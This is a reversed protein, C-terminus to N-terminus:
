KKNGRLQFKYGVSWVTGIFWYPSGSLKERLRKVHVDVTRTDGAYDYGWINNLLQERTFVQDPSSALFYLLEMEKPPMEVNQGNFFVAYNSLNIILDPFKIIKQSQLRAEPDGRVYGPETRRLVARVRAVLEKMDFPKGIYDDAGLELGLVRDFVEAKESLMIIPVRSNRRIERCIQYGDLIPLVLELIVLDPARTTFAALAKQGDTVITTDYYEKKLTQSIMEAISVDNDVILIKQRNAM